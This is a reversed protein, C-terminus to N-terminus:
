YDIDLLRKTEAVNPLEDTTIEKLGHSLKRKRRVMTFSLGGAITQAQYAVRWERWMKERSELWQESPTGVVDKCRLGSRKGEKKEMVEYLSFSELRPSCHLFQLIESSSRGDMMRMRESEETGEIGGDKKEEGREVREILSIVSEFLFSNREEGIIGRRIIEYLPTIWKRTVERGISLFISLQILILLSTCEVGRWESLYRYVAECLQDKIKEEVDLCAFLITPLLLSSPTISRTQSRAKTLKEIFYSVIAVTLNRYASASMLEDREMMRERLKTLLLHVLSSLSVNGRMSKYISAVIRNVIKSAAGAAGAASGEKASSYSQMVVIEMEDRISDIDFVTISKLINRGGDMELGNWSSPSVKRILERYMEMKLRSMEERGEGEEEEERKEMTGRVIRKTYQRKMLKRLMTAARKQISPSSHESLGVLREVVEGIEEGGEMSGEVLLEEEDRCSGNGFLLANLVTLSVNLASQEEEKMMEIMERVIERTEIMGRYVTLVLLRIMSDSRSGGSKIETLIMDRWWEEVGRMGVRTSLDSILDAMAILKMETRNQGNLLTIMISKVREVKQAFSDAPGIVSGHKLTCLSHPMELDFLKALRATQWHLPCLSRILTSVRERLTTWIGMAALTLHSQFCRAALFLVASSAHVALPPSLRAISVLYPLSQQLFRPILSSDVTADIIQCLVLLSSRSPLFLRTEMMEERREVAEMWVGMVADGLRMALEHSERCSLFRLGDVIEKAEKQRTEDMRAYWSHSSSCFLGNLLSVLRSWTQEKRAGKHSRTIMQISEPIVRKSRIDPLNSILEDLSYSSDGDYINARNEEYFRIVDDYNVLQEYSLALFLRSVVRIFRKGDNKSPRTSLLFILLRDRTSPLNWRRVIRAALTCGMASRHQLAWELLLDFQNEPWDISGMRDMMGEVDFERQHKEYDLIHVFEYERDTRDLDIHTLSDEDDDDSIEREEDDDEVKFDLREAQSLAISWVEHSLAHNWGCIRTAMQIVRRSDDRDFVDINSRLLCLFHTCVDAVPVLKRECLWLLFDTEEIVPRGYSLCSKFLSTAVMVCKYEDSRENLRYRYEIEYEDWYGDRVVSPPVQKEKALTIENFMKQCRAAIKKSISKKAFQPACSDFEYKLVPVKYGRGMRIRLERNPTISQEQQEWTAPDTHFHTMTRMSNIMEQWNPLVDNCNVDAVECNSSQQWFLSSDM